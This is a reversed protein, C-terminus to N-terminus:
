SIKQVFLNQAVKRSLLLEQSGGVRVRVSEDFGFRELLTVEAGLMLEMRELYRLFDPHHEQVGVVICANGEKLDCLLVQKRLVMNGAADPIPDGHPDFRPFGLFDDLREILSDSQIHELQEAIAHVEDWSFDLKDVLFVEWLRHKRILTKAIRSGEDTLVVGRYKEHLVLLKESLRKIMDTVSAASTNMEAAIANTSVPRDEKEFIKFIAKLYNEETESIKLMQKGRSVFIGIVTM